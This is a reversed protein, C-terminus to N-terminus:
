AAVLGARELMADISPDRGMFRRFLEAPDDSDGHRLVSELFARGVHPAFVGERRFRSFADADLVEAWKYSYYGAAYGVPSGFLHGFAAAMAHEKPLPVASHRQLIERALEVPNDSSTAPDFDCHLALDLEAFGLQRMMAGAARFARARKMATYLADPLPADTEWHRAFMDLAEREWAWNEMIMSPLEVFDWAVNTGAQSRLEVTSLAHHLLHGLEHFITEVEGHTLLAPRGGVPPTVNAVLVEVNLAKPDAARAATLLGHMWAGDRKNERPFADVYFSAIAHGDTDRVFYGRVDPHWSPLAGPAAAEIKVGYLREAIEFAGALVRDLAFYPRLAEADFDYRARRLKEAYYGVDWPQLAPASPGELERRFAALDDNEKAFFARTKDRLTDLFRRASQGDKAMRDQLVLDAFDRFGLLRAKERRLELIRRVLPRNDHPAVTARTAYGRYLAERLTPDDAYTLVPGYSPAQLTLRFGDLGKAKASERAAEIANPPMGALRAEDTVVLEFANTADLVHEGYEITKQSLEVDIAALRSKGTPDLEAGHRRFDALTKELFRRRPGTLARADDTEAYRLLAAYVGAHLPVSSFLESVRPQAEGYAARMEPTNACAELHSVLGIADDVAAGFGDLAGLTAEWTPPASAITDLSARAAALLADIAPAVDAATVRDFPLPPALALLPNTM